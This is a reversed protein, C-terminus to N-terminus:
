TFLTAHPLPLFGVDEEPMLICVCMSVSLGGVCSVPMSMFCYLYGFSSFAVDYDMSFSKVPFRMYGVRDWSAPVSPQIPFTQGTLSTEAHSEGSPVTAELRVSLQSM